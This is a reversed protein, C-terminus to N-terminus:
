QGWARYLWAQAFAWDRKITRESAEVVQATEALSLGGFFRCEVVKAQRPYSEAFRDLAEHIWLMQESKSSDSAQFEDLTVPREGSGRKHRRRKRAADVLVQRMARAAAGFFYARGKDSVGQGGMLKLYAEHVLATTQLTQQDHEGRLFRRAMVRLEGYVARVLAEEDLDEISSPSLPDTEPREDM